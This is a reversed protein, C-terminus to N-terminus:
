NFNNDKLVNLNIEVDPVKELSSLRLQIHNFAKQSVFGYKSIRHQLPMQGGEFGIRKKGGSRALQDRIDREM